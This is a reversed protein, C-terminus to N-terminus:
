NQSNDYTEIFTNIHYEESLFGLEPDIRFRNFARFSESVDIKGDRQFIKLVIVPFASTWEREVEMIDMLMLLDVLQSFVEVEKKAFVAILM